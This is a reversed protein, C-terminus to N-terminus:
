QSSRLLSKIIVCQIEFFLDDVRDVGHKAMMFCKLNHLDWKGGHQIDADIFNLVVSLKHYCGVQSNYNESTKQIAVNTLHIFTNSIDTSNMSYRTNTFRAFGGRYIYVELPSFSTVLAYLRM